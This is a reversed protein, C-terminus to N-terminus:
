CCCKRKKGNMSRIKLMKIGITSSWRLEEYMCLGCKPSWIKVSPYEKGCKICAMMRRGWLYMFCKRSRRKAKCLYCALPWVRWLEYDGSMRELTLCELESRTLGSNLIASKDKRNATRRSCHMRKPIWSKVGVPTSMKNNSATVCRELDHAEIGAIMYRGHKM